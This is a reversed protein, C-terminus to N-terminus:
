PALIGYFSFINVEVVRTTFSTIKDTRHTQKDTQKHAKGHSFTQGLTRSTNKLKAPCKTRRVMPREGSMTRNRRVHITLRFLFCKSYVKLLVKQFTCRSTIETSSM